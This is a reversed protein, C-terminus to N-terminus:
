QSKKEMTYVTKTGREMDCNGYGVDDSIDKLSEAQWPGSITNAGAPGQSVRKFTEEGTVPQGNPASSDAIKETLTNGDASVNDM